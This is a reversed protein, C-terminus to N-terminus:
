TVQLWYAAFRIALSVKPVTQAPEATALFDADAQQRASPRWAHAGFGEPKPSADSGVALERIEPGRM